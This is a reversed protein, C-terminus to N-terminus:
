AARRLAKFIDEITSRYRPFRAALVRGLERLAPDSLLTDFEDATLGLQRGYKDNVTQTAVRLLRAVDSSADPRPRGKERVLYVVWLVQKLAEPIGFPLVPLGAMPSEAVIQNGRRLGDAPALGQFKAKKEIALERRLVTNHTELRVRAEEDLFGFVDGDVEITYGGVDDAKFFDGLYVKLVQLM